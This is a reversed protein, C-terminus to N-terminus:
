FRLWAALSRWAGLTISAAWVLSWISFASLVLWKFAGLRMKAQAARLFFPLVCWIGFPLFMLSFWSYALSVLWISESVQTEVAHSTVFFRGGAPITGVADGGISVSFGAFVLWNVFALLFVIKAWRPIVSLGIKIKAFRGRKRAPPGSRDELAEGSM